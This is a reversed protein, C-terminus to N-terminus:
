SVPKKQEYHAARHTTLMTAQTVRQFTEGCQAAKSNGCDGRLHSVCLSRECHYFFDVEWEDHFHYTKKRKKEDKQPETMEENESCGSAPKWWTQIIEVFAVNQDHACYNM